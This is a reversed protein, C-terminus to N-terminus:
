FSTSRLKIESLIKKTYLPFDAQLLWGFYGSDKKYVDVVRQGKYKGFNFVEAGSDDYVIHGAFDAFKSHASFDSLMAVDNRLEEPYRDLQAKLVEYTARIDADAAHAEDLNKQCYFKYAAVLTRPEMKYFINQVDIMKAKKLDIDVEARAFEEALLPLDFKLSNYGGLDCGKFVEALEKAAQKFTPCSAVDADTIHHIESAQEPIHCEPNIRICKSEETGNPYVKIYGIEVIRDKVVDVGTTELDFFIIPKKLILNM